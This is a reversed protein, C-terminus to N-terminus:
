YSYEDEDDDEGRDTVYDTTGIVANPWHELFWSQEKEGDVFVAMDELGVVRLEKLGKLLDLGSEVTMALCDTQRLYTKDGSSYNNATTDIAYGLTLERLKTLRALRTYVNRQLDLSEQPTGDIVFLRLLPYDMCEAFDPRPIKGIQCAFVELGSCVWDQSSGALELADLYGGNHNSHPKTFRLEKLKPAACLLRHVDTSSTFFMGKIRLVELTSAGHRIVTDFFDQQFKCRRGPDDGVSFVLKRWGGPSGKKIIRVFEGFLGHFQGSVELSTLFPFFPEPCIDIFHFFSSKCNMQLSHILHGHTEFQSSTAKYHSTGNGWLIRVHKWLHPHFFTRWAQCVRICQSLDYQTLFLAVNEHLEYPLDNFLTRTM